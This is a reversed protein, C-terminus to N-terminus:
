VNERVRRLNFNVLRVAFERSVSSICDEPVELFIKEVTEESILSLRSRCLERLEPKLSIMRLLAELTTLKRGTKEDLFHTRARAAFAEVAYGRDRSELRKRRVEDLLERGMSAAHDFTPAM